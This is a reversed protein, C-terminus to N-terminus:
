LAAYPQNSRCFHFVVTFFFMQLVTCALEDQIIGHIIVCHTFYQLIIRSKVELEQKCAQMQTTKSNVM